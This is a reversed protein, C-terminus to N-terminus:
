LGNKLAAQLVLVDRKVGLAVSKSSISAGTIINIDRGATIADNATKGVFQQRFTPFRVQDGYPERFEIIEVREVTGKGDFRVGFDILEHLGLEADLVAYGLRKQNADEGVYINWTQKGLPVGLKKEIAAVDAAPLPVEHPIVSKAGKFFDGLLARKDWYQTAHAPFAVGLLALTVAHVSFRSLRM